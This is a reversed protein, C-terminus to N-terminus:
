MKTEPKTIDHRKKCESYVTDDQIKDTSIQPAVKAIVEPLKMCVKYFTDSQGTVICYFQDISVRRIRKHHVKQKDVSTEWIINQSDNAIAEVLYCACDDDNCLQQQMKKHTREASSSNMTNHKNKMEVYITHVLEDSEKNPAFYLGAPNKFIVDWGGNKGNPPVTCKEMYKFIHQHFYGIYNNNTKDRQRTIENNILEQWPIGYLAKDFAFKVPDIINKNFDKLSMSKLSERYNEITRRVHNEFDNESIFDLDWM